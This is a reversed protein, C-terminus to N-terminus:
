KFEVGLEREARVKLECLAKHNFKNKVILAFIETAKDILEPQTSFRDPHVKKKLENYLEQSHFANNIVGDFDVSESKLKRKLRYHESSRHKFVGLAIAGAALVGGLWYAWQYSDDQPANTTATSVANKVTDMVQTLSDTTNM